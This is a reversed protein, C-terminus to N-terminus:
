VSPRLNRIQGVARMLAEAAEISLAALTGGSFRDDDTVEAIANTPTGLREDELGLEVETLVLGALDGHFADVAMARGGFEWRWRTKSLVTADLGVFALYEQEDLYINTLKVLEPSNNQERVKQGLKWIVEDRSQVRRLRLRTGTLYHDLIEVPDHRDEPLQGLLWRQERETQSYRGEGPVRSPMCENDWRGQGGHGPRAPMSWPLCPLSPSGTLVQEPERRHAAWDSGFASDPTTRLEEIETTRM